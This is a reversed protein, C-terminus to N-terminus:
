PNSGKRIELSEYYNLMSSVLTETSFDRLVRERAQKGMEKRLAPYKIFQLMKDALIDMRGVEYLLGTSGEEIADTIGYIRSGISPIGVAAAEIIVQGFGERYSPLCLVDASAIYREPVMTYDVFHVNKQCARCISMVKERINEEDPGVILLHSSQPSVMVRTFANALDLIGKDAKLRGLFLFVLESEDIGLEKRIVSGAIEDPVFRTCDVGCVSGKALVSSKKGSVVKERILFDRQSPSDVLIHTAFTAIIKDMGRLFRKVIGSKTAWVQGTFIHIRKQTGALFAATMALLGSKPAISHVVDFRNTYFLRTLDILARIDRLISISREIRVPLVPVDVGLSKLSVMGPANVVVTIDYKSNMAKIHELLFWIIQWDVTAVFCIKKKHM